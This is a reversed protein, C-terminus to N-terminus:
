LGAALPPTLAGLAAGVLGPLPEGRRTAVAIARPAPAPEPLPLATVGDRRGPTLALAPCIAAGLGGAVLGPVAVESECRVRFRPVAGARAFWREVARQVGSGPGLGVLPLRATQAAPPATPARALLWAAPVLLVLPDEAVAHRDLGAGDLEGVAVDVEGSRLSLELEAGDRELVTLPTGRGAAAALAPVLHALVRAPAAVRLARSM